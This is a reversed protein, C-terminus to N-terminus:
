ADQALRETLAPVHSRLDGCASHSEVEVSGFEIRSFASDTEVEVLALEM